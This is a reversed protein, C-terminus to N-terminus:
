PSLRAILAIVLLLALVGGVALWRAARRPGLIAGLEAEGIEVAPRRQPPALAAAPMPPRAAPMPPRSGPMPPRTEPMPPRSGPMPPRAEPMPPRSGPMPPRVAPSLSVAKAEPPELGALAYPSPIALTAEDDGNEWGHPQTHFTTVDEDRIASQELLEPPTAFLVTVDDFDQTTDRIAAAQAANVGVSRKIEPM